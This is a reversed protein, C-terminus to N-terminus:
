SRTGVLVARNRGDNPYRLAALDPFAPHSEPVDNAVLLLLQGGPRLLRAAEDLVDGPPAYARATVGDWTGAELTETRACLVTARHPVGAEALAGSLFVCRKHRSDVLTIDLDPFRAAFVVGPFGAGTGLDAWRGTPRVCALVLARDADLYHDDTPGPGVLNMAKRWRELRDQHARILPHKLIDSM